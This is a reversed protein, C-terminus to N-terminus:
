RHPTTSDTPSPQKPVIAQPSIKGSTARDSPAKPRGFILPRDNAIRAVDDINILRDRGSTLYCELLDQGATPHPGATSHAQHKGILAHGTM